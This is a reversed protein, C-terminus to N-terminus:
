YNFLKATSISNLNNKTLFPLNRKKIRKLSGHLVKLSRSFGWDTNRIRIRPGTVKQGPIQSLGFILIRIRSGPPVNRIM